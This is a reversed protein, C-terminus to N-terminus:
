VVLLDVSPIIERIREEAATNDAIAAEIEDPYAAAYALLAAMQNAPIALHAATRALDDGYSRAVIVAQWVALRSGQLYAQRGVASDRFEIFAFERERLSEELLLVAAASPTKGLSRAARQLRAMQADKLRLSMVKSM